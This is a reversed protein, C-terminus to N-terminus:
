EILKYFKELEETNGKKETKLYSIIENTLEKNNIVELIGNVIGQSNMDVVLGNKKDEIQDYVIDFNTTVIPKNLLKAEAIAMGFGEFRSPQCYIDCEKIFPYPNTYTGIFKFEDELNNEKVQQKLMSTLVGEGISYWRFKIGKEKLIRAADIAIDYGKLHVHRGITLIRIGDFDDNYGTGKKAMNIVLKPSIIDYIVKIKKKYEPFINELIDRNKNSVTVINNYNNYYKKDFEINYGAKIYDTNIWCIKKVAEVKEAVYYTPTGQSYAIAVDYEKNLSQIKNKLNPWMAQAGHKIHTFRMKYRIDISSKIRWFFNSYEKNIFVEKISKSMTTFIDPSKLRNVSEHILPEYLGGSRFTLLDVECKSYDLLSLLSILSKEAGGSNLSDIVFLIKKKM